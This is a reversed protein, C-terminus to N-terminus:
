LYKHKFIKQNIFQYILDGIKAMLLSCIFIIPVIIFFWELKLTTNTIYQNFYYYIIKDFLFSSLYIGLSLQATATIINKIRQNIKEFNIKLLILFFLSSNIVNELGGWNDLSHVNWTTGKTVLINLISFASFCLIFLLILKNCKLNFGYRNIFAGIVYYTIVWLHQWSTIFFTPASCLTPLVTLFILTLLFILDHKKTSFIKNIFPILLFLGIYMDVYWGYGILKFDIINNFIHKLHSPQFIGFPILLKIAIMTIITIILYPLLIPKIGIYYKLSLEKKNMLYGTIIIFLPVCMMFFTRMICMIYMRPCTITTQYFNNNLFFHVSVVFFIAMFKIIDINLNRNKVCNM